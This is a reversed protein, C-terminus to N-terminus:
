FKYNMAEKRSNIKLKTYINSVHSKVTSLGINYETSIEKNSKGLQILRFIKREQPSLLKVKNLNKNNKKYNFLYYSFLMGLIFTMISTLLISYKTNKKDVPIKKRFDKFYLSQNNKWKDLYDYYFQENFPLNSEFKSKHLAYLSIIPDTSTDSIHRLKEQLAKSVFESKVQSENFNTSDIYRVINDIDQIKNNQSSNEIILDSFIDTKNKNRINIKSKNNAIIFLHNEEKGGIILSAKSSSKKSIHLRYLNDESPLYNVKFNFDGCSDIKSESIIMSRSMTYMKSFSPIHSLYIESNWISDLKLNGSIYYQEEKNNQAFSNYYIFFSCFFLSFRVSYYFNITLKM